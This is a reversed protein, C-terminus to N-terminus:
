IGVLLFLLDICLLCKLAGQFIFDFANRNSDYGNM